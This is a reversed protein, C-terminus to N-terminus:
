YIYVIGILSKVHSKHICAAALSTKEWESSFHCRREQATTCLSDETNSLLGSKKAM